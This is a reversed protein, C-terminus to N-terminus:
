SLLIKHARMIIAAAHKPETNKRFLQDLWKDLQGGSEEIFKENAHYFSDPINDNVAEAWGDVGGIHTYPLPNDHGTVKQVSLTQFYNFETKSIEYYYGDQTVVQWAPIQEECKREYEEQEAWNLRNFKRRDFRCRPKTTERATCGEDHMKKLWDRKTYIRGECRTLKNLASEAKASHAATLAKTM